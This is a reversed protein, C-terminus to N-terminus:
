VPFEINRVVVKTRPPIWMDKWGAVNADKLWIGTKTDYDAYLALAGELYTEQTVCKRNM